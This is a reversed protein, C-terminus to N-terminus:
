CSHRAMEHGSLVILYYHDSILNWEEYEDLAAHRKFLSMEQPDLSDAMQRMTMFLKVQWGWHKYRKELEEISAVRHSELDIHRYHFNSIMQDSFRDDFLLLPEYIIFHAHPGHLTDFIHEIHKGPLYMLCCEALFIVTRDFNIGAEKLKEVLKAPDDLLDFPIIFYRPDSSLHSLIKRKEDVVEQYDVEVYLGIGDVSNFFRYWRTDFGAGLVVIQVASAASDVLRLLEADIARTRVFTGVREM